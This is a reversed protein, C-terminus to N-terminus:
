LITFVSGSMRKANRISSMRGPKVTMTTKVNARPMPALVVIKLAM